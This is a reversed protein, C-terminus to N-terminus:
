HEKARIVEVDFPPVGLLVQMPRLLCQVAYLYVFWTMKRCGWGSTTTYWIPAGTTDCKPIYAYVSRFVRRIEGVTSFM